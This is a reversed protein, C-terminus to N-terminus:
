FPKCFSTCWEVPKSEAPSGGFARIDHLELRQLTERNVVLKKAIKKM